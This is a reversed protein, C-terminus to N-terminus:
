RAPMLIACRGTPRCTTPCSVVAGPALFRPDENRRILTHNLVQDRLSLAPADVPQGQSDQWGKESHEVLRMLAALGELTQRQQDAPLADLVTRRFAQHGSTRGAPNIGGM